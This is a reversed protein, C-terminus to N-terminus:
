CSIYNTIHANHETRREAPASTNALSLINDPAAPLLSRPESVNYPLQMRKAQTVDNDQQRGCLTVRETHWRRGRPSVHLGEARFM